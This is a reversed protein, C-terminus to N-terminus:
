FGMFLRAVLLGCHLLFSAEHAGDDAALMSGAMPAGSIGAAQFRAARAAEQERDCQAAEIGGGHIWEVLRSLKDADFWMGHPKCYDVIVGSRHEYNQRLMLTSCVPCPLYGRSMGTSKGATPLHRSFDTRLWKEATEGTQRAHDILQQFIAIEIWLGACIRCEMIGFGGVPRSFLRHDGRCIPCTLLTDVNDLPEAALPKGCHDCFRAQDSVRAFCQPCITDLDQERLTFDASCYECRTSGEHRPAGCSSCRVVAADHGQPQHVTLVEGCRCRFRSGIERGTADYQRQCKPCAVLLRM